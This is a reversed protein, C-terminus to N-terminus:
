GVVGEVYKKFNDLIAQWGQQQMELSNETEAEFTEIIQTGGGDSEFRIAVTRGDDMVYDIAKNPIVNTYKGSFDFGFSGDKAEMRSLFTGGVKLDNTAKPTHWDASANNWQMIHEPETWYHWVNEVPANVIAEVTISKKNLTKM